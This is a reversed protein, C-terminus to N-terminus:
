QRTATQGSGPPPQHPLTPPLIVATFFSGASISANTTREISHLLLRAAVQVRQETSGMLSDCKAKIASPGQSFEQLGLM